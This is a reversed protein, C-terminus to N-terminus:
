QFFVQCDYDGPVPIDRALTSALDGDDSGGAVLVKGNQLLTATQGYRAAMLGGTVSWVGTAADYLEASGDSGYDWPSFDGGVVLVKGNPLLTATHGARSMHLSGTPIWKPDVRALAVPKWVIIAVSVFGILELILGLRHRAIIRITKMAVVGERQGSGLDDRFFEFLLRQATWSAFRPRTYGEPFGFSIVLRRLFNTEFAPRFLYRSYLFLFM